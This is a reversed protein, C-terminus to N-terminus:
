GLTRRAKIALTYDRTAAEFNARSIDEGAGWWAIGARAASRGLELFEEPRHEVAKLFEECVAVVDDKTVSEPIEVAQELFDAFQMPTYPM